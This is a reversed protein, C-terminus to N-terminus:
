RIQLIQHKKCYRYKTQKQMSRKLLNYWNAMNGFKEMKITGHIQYKGLVVPLDDTLFSARMLDILRKLNFYYRNAIEETYAADSEGQM